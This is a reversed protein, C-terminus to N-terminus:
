HENIDMEYFHMLIEGAIRRMFLRITDWKGKLESSEGEELPLSVHILWRGKRLAM